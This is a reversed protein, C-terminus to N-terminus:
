ESALPFMFVAVAEYPARKATYLGKSLPLYM